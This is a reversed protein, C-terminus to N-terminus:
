YFSRVMDSLQTLTIGFKVVVTKSANFVPRSSPNYNDLLTELLRQEDTPLVKANARVDFVFVVCLAFLFMELM